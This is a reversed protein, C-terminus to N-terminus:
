SPFLQELKQHRFSFIGHLQKKVFLLHALQGIPGLPLKYSVIDKILTKNDRQEFFHEHHWMSYPGIRQEDIFFKNEEVQTIETVWNMPINAVPRVKYSIIQGSYVKDGIPTTIKFGMHKPTIEALNQPNSFFSWAESLSINVLQESRLQHIGSQSTISLM